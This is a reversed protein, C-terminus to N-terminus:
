DSPRYPASCIGALAFGKGAQKDPPNSVHSNICLAAGLPTNRQNISLPFSEGNDNAMGISTMKMM